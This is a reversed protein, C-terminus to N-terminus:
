DHLDYIVLIHAMNYAYYILHRVDFRKEVRRQPHSSIVVGM